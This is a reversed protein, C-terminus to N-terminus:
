EGDLRSDVDRALLEAIKETPVFKFYHDVVAHDMEHAIVSDTIDQISTYITETRQAYFARSNSREGSIGQYADALEKHNRFVKIIIHMQDPNVGLIDKVRSLIAGLRAVIRNEIHYKRNSFLDREASSVPFDRGRLRAELKKLNIEPPYIVKIQSNGISLWPTTATANIAATDEARLPAPFYALFGIIM